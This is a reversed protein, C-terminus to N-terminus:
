CRGHQPLDFLSKIWAHGAVTPHGDPNCLTAYLSPNTVKVTCIAEFVDVYPVRYKAAVAKIAQVYDRVNPLYSSHDYIWPTVLTVSIGAIVASAVQADLTAQMSAVPTGPIDNEGPMAIILDGRGLGMALAANWQPQMQATNMGSVALNLETMGTEAALLALWGEGASWGGARTPATVSDGIGVLSKGGGSGGGAQEVQIQEVLLTTSGSVSFGAGSTSGAGTGAKYYFNYDSDASNRRALTGGATCDGSVILPNGATVAYPIADSWVAANPAMVLSPSGSFTLQVQTGDFAAVSGAHGVYLSSFTAGSSGAKLRIKISIGSQSVVGGEFRQRISNGTWGLDSSSLAQVPITAVFGV